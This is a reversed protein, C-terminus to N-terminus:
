GPGGTPRSPRRPTRACIVPVTLGPTHRVVQNVIGRGMIGAGVQAFPAPDDAAARQELATDVLMM